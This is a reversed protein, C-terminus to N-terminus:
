TYVCKRFIYLLYFFGDTFKLLIGGCGNTMGWTSTTKRSATPHGNEMRCFIICELLIFHVQSCNQPTIHLSFSRLSTNSLRTQNNWPLCCCIMWTKKMLFYVQFVVSHFVVCDIYAMKLSWRQRLQFYKGPLNPPATTFFVGTITSILNSQRGSPAVFQSIFPLENTGQLQKSGPLDLCPNIGSAGTLRAPTDSASM